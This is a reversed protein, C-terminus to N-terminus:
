SSNSSTGVGLGEIMREFPVLHVPVLIGVQESSLWHCSGEDERDCMEMAEVNDQPDVPAKGKGKGKGQKTISITTEDMDM